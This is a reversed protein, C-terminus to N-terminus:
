TGPVWNAAETSRAMFSMAEHWRNVGVPQIGEEFLRHEGHSDILLQTPNNDVVDLHFSVMESKDDEVYQLEIYMGPAIEFYTRLHDPVDANIPEFGLLRYESVMVNYM